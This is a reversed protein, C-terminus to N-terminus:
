VDFEKTEWLQMIGSNTAMWLTFDYPTSLKVGRSKMLDIIEKLIRSEPSLKEYEVNWKCAPCKGCIIYENYDVERIHPCKKM